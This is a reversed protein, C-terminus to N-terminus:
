VLATETDLPDADLLRNRVAWRYFDRLAAAGAARSFLDAYYARVWRDDIAELQNQGGAALWQEAFGALVEQYPGLLYPRVHVLEKLYSDIAGLLMRDHVIADQTWM